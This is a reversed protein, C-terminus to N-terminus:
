DLYYLLLSLSLYGKEGPAYGLRKISFHTFWRLVKGGKVVRENGAKLEGSGKALELNTTNTKRSIVLDKDQVNMEAPDVVEWELDEFKIDALTPIQEQTPRGEPDM